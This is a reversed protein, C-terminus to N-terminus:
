DCGWGDHDRDLGYVDVGIVQVKGTYYPGNGSGGACDYDSADARLCGSYNPNCNQASASSKQTITPTKIPLTISTPKQKEETGKNDDVKTQLLQEQADSKIVATSSAHNAVVNLIPNVPKSISTGLAKSGVQTSLPIVNNIPLSTNAPNGGGLLTSLGFLIYLISFM